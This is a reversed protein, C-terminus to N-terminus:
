ERRHRLIVGRQACGQGGAAFAAERGPQRGPEEAGTDAATIGAGASDGKGKIVAGAFAGQWQEVDKGAFPDGSGKELASHVYLAMRRDGALHGEGPMLDAVM